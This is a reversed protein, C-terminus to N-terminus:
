RPQYIRRIAPLCLFIWIGMIWAVSVGAQFPWVQRSYTSVDFLAHNVWIHIQYVIIAGLLLRRAWAWLRWVGLAAATFVLGWVLGCVALYTLPLSLPLTHEFSIDKSALWARTLNVAGLYLV